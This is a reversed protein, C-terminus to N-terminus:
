GDIVMREGEERELIGMFGGDVREGKLIRVAAEATKAMIELKSVGGGVEVVVREGVSVKCTYERKGMEDMVEGMGLEYKVTENGALLGLREKPHWVEVNDNLIRRMYPLIGMREIVRECVEFSGSDVWIAGLLSEVLDSYFKYAELKALLAWPYNSGSTIATSIDQRLSAHRKTTELQVSGLKPSSHRMFKWLPIALKTTQPILKLERDIDQEIIEVRDQEVSWEMCLFALFDANVLATRLLHMQIHSLNYMTLNKVVLHDLISDGLFEMRELSSSGTM